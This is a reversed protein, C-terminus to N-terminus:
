LNRVQSVNTCRLLDSTANLRQLKILSTKEIHAASSTQLLNAPVVADQLADINLLSSMLRSLNIARIRWDYGFTDM